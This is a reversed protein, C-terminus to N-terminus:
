PQDPRLHQLEGASGAQGELVREYCDALRRLLWANCTSTANSM